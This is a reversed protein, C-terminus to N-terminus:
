PGIVSAIWERRYLPIVDGGNAERILWGPVRAFTRHERVDLVTFPQVGLTARGPEPGFAVPLNYVLGGVGAKMATDLPLMVGATEGEDCDVMQVRETREVGAVDQSRGLVLPYRPRRFAAEWSPPLYLTLRPNLLFERRIVNRQVAQAVDKESKREVTVIAELDKARAEYDCRYAVWEVAMPSVWEGVAAALLGFITSLPPLPLTLQYAVLGPVRFSASYATLEVRIAERM